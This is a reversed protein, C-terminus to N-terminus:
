TTVIMCYSIHVLVVMCYSAHLLQYVILSAPVSTRCSIHLLQYAIVQDLEAGFGQESLWQETRSRNWETMPVCEPKFSSTVPRLGLAAPMSLAAATGRGICCILVLHLRMNFSMCCIAHM